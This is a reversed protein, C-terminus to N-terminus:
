VSKGIRLYTKSLMLCSMFSFFVIGKQHELMSETLCAFVFLLTFVILITSNNKISLYLITGFLIVFLSLGMIGLGVSTQLFQNHSNYIDKYLISSFNNEKYCKKLNDQVDGTGSGFFVNEKINEYSCYFCANRINTSNHHTGYPFSNYDILIENYRDAFSKVNQIILIFLIIFSISALTGILVGVKKVLLQFILAAIFLLLFIMPMRASLLVVFVFFFLCLLCWTIIQGKCTLKWKTHIADLLIIISFILYISLDTPHTFRSIRRLLIERSFYEITFEDMIYCFYISSTVCIVSITLCAAVFTWLVNNVMKEKITGNLLIFIPFLCLTLKKELDFFGAKLNDTWVLGIAHLLYFVAFALFVWKRQRFTPRINTCFDKNLLSFVLFLIISINNPLIGFPLTFAIACLLINNVIESKLYRV